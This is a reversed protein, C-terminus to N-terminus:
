KWLIGWPLEVWYKEDLKQLEWGNREYLCAFSRCFCSTEIFWWYTPQSWMSSLKLLRCRRVCVNNECFEGHFNSETNKWTVKAIRLWKKWVSVWTTSFCYQCLIFHRLLNSCPRFYNVFNVYDCMYMFNVYFMMFIEIYYKEHLKQLKWGNREFLCETWLFVINVRCSTDWYTLVIDFCTSLTWMTVCM